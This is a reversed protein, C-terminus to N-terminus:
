TWHPVSGAPRKDSRPRRLSARWTLTCPAPHLTCTEPDLTWPEPNLTFPVSILTYIEQRSHVSIFTCM